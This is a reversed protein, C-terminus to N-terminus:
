GVLAALRLFSFFLYYFSIFSTFFRLALSVDQSEVGGLAVAVVRWGGIRGALSLIQQAGHQIPSSGENEGKVV